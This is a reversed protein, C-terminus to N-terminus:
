QAAALVGIARSPESTIIGAVAHARLADIMAETEDFGTWANVELGNTNAVEMFEEDVMPAYPHVIKHGHELAPAVVDAPPKRSFLLLATAVQPAINRARNICGIGFSSILVNDNSGRDALQQVVLETVLEDPDFAVDEPYNKIEVNVILGACLDLAEDLLIVEPPFDRSRTEAVLRGDPLDVDHIVALGGDSCRRVDLEVGHAGSDRVRAFSERSNILNGPEVGGHGYILM